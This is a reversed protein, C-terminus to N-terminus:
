LVASEIEVTETPGDTTMASLKSLQKSFFDIYLLLKLRDTDDVCAPLFQYVLADSLLEKAL